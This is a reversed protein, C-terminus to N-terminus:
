GRRRKGYVDVTVGVIIIGGIVVRQWNASVVLLNLGNRVVGMSRAGVLSGLVSGEGGMLSGGGIVAAAIIDLEYGDGATPAAANLRAAMIAGALASLVGTLVYAVTKYRDVRV